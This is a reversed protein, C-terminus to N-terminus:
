TVEQVAPIDGNEESLWEISRTATGGAVVVAAHAIPQTRWDVLAGAAGRERRFEALVPRNDFCTQVCRSGFNLLSGAAGGLQMQEPRSHEIPQLGRLSRLRALTHRRGLKILRLELAAGRSFHSRM